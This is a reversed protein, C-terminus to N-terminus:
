STCQYNVHYRGIPVVSPSGSVPDQIVKSDLGFIDKILTSTIVKSPKGEAVLKGQRLAFIHDAYRASLNIDHLVLSPKPM